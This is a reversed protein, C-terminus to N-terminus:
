KPQLCLFSLQRCLFASVELSCTGYQQTGRRMGSGLWGWASCGLPSARLQSGMSSQAVDEPGNDGVPQGLSLSTDLQCLPSVGHLLCHCGGGVSSGGTSGHLSQAMLTQSCRPTLQSTSQEWGHWATDEYVLALCWQHVRRQPGARGGRVHWLQHGPCMKCCPFWHPSTASAWGSLQHGPAAGADRSREACRHAGQLSGPQDGSGEAPPFSPAQVWVAAPHHLVLQQHLAPQPVRIHSAGPISPTLLSKSVRRLENGGSAGDPYATSPLLDTGVAPGKGGTGLHGTHADAM